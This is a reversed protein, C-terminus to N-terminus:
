EDLGLRGKIWATLKPGSLKEKGADTKVFAEGGGTYYPDKSFVHPIVIEVVHLDPIVRGDDDYVKDLNIRYLTPDLAPQIGSLKNTLVRRIEDRERRDLKVGVTTGDSDRIGWLIRGGEGSNLFAVVYEDATNKISKTSHISKIEKFECHRDEEIEVPQGLFFRARTIPMQRPSTLDDWPTVLPVYTSTVAPFESELSEQDGADFDAGRRLDFEAEIREVSISYAERSSDCGLWRRDNAQAAVLATGTGCFPDLVLNGPNSGMRIIRELLFLPKQTPYDL